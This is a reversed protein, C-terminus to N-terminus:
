KATRAVRIRGKGKVQINLAEEEDQFSQVVRCFDDVSVQEPLQFDEVAIITDGIALSQHEPPLLSNLSGIIVQEDRYYPTLPYTGQEPEFKRPMLLIEGEQYDMFVHFQRLFNMGLLKAQKSQEQDVLIPIITDPFEFKMEFEYATDLASGFLGGSLFGYSKFKAAEPKFSSTLSQPLTLTGNSGTDFTIGKIQSGNITLTVMPTRSSKISFPLVYKKGQPWHEKTDSMRLLNDELSFDWYQFQMANAGIIGDLKLCSLLPSAKLDAAIAVFDSFTRDGLKFDPMRVYDQRQQEGQSDRITAKRLVKAQYKEALEQSIVMPAGSDFLFNYLEGEIEVQVYLLNQKVEIPLNIPSVSHEPKGVKGRAFLAASSRCTSLSLLLGIAFFIQLLRNM